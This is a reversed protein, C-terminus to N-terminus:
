EIDFQILDKPDTNKWLKALNTASVEGKTDTPVFIDAVDYSKLIRKGVKTAKYSKGVLNAIQDARSTGFRSLSNIRLPKLMAKGKNDGNAVVLFNKEEVFSDFFRNVSIEGVKIGNKEVEFVFYKNGEYVKPIPNFAFIRGELPTESAEFKLAKISKESMGADEFASIVQDRTIPIIQEQAM